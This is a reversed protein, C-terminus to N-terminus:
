SRPPRPKSKKDSSSSSAYSLVESKPPKAYPISKTMRPTERGGNPGNSLVYPGGANQVARYAGVFERVGPMGPVARTDHNDVSYQKSM